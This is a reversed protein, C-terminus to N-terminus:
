RSLISDILIFQSNFLSVFSFSTMKNLIIIVMDRDLKTPQARRNDYEM